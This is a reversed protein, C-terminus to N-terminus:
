MSRDDGKKFAGADYFWFLVVLGIVLAGYSACVMMFTVDYFGKGLAHVVTPLSCEKQNKLWWEYLGYLPVGVGVCFALFLPPSCLFLLWEFLFLSSYFVARSDFARLQDRWNSQGALRRERVDEPEVIAKFPSLFARALFLIM